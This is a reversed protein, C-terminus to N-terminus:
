RSCRARRSGASRAPTGTGPAFAPTSRISTSPCIPRGTGWSGRPGDRRDAPIGLAVRGEEAHIMTLGHRERHLVGLALRGLRPHRDPDHARISCATSCRRGSPGGHHFKSGEYTAPRTPTPTSYHIMGWRGGPAWRREPDPALDLPRRRGVAPSRGRRRHPRYYAEIDAHCQALSFRTELAADARHRRRAARLHAAGQASTSRLPRPGSSPTRLPGGPGFRTGTQGPNTVGWIWNCDKMRGVGWSPSTSIPLRARRPATPATPCADYFRRCSGLVALPRKTRLRPVADRGGGSSRPRFIDGGTAEPSAPAAPRRAEGPDM